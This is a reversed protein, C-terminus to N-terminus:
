NASYTITAENTVGEMLTANNDATGGNVLNARVKTLSNLVKADYSGSLDSKSTGSSLVSGSSHVFGTIELTGTIKSGCIDPCPLLM